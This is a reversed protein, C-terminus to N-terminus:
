PTTTIYADILDIRGTVPSIVAGQVRNSLALYSTPAYLFIVYAQETIRKQAAASAQMYSDENTASIIGGLMQDLEMDNVFGYNLVGITMSSFLGFLIGSNDWIHALLM